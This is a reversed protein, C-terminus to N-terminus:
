AAGDPDPWPMITVEVGDTENTDLSEMDVHMSALGDPLPWNSGNYEEVGVKLDIPENSHSEAMPRSFYQKSHSHHSRNHVLYIVATIEDGAEFSEVISEHMSLSARVSFPVKEEEWKGEKGLFSRIEPSLRLTPPYDLCFEHGDREPFKIINDSPKDDSYKM